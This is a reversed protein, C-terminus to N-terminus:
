NKSLLSSMLIFCPQWAIFCPLWFWSFIIHVYRNTNSWRCKYQCGLPSNKFVKWQPKIAYGLILPIYLKPKTVKVESVNLKTVAFIVSKDKSSSQKSDPVFYDYFYIIFICSIACLILFYHRFSVM